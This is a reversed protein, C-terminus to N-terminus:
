QQTRDSKNPSSRTLSLSLSLSSSLGQCYVGARDASVKVINWDRHLPDHDLLVRMGESELVNYISHQGADEDGVPILLPRASHQKPSVVNDFEEPKLAQRCDRADRKPRFRCLGRGLRNALGLQKDVAKLLMAPKFLRRRKMINKIVRKGSETDKSVM